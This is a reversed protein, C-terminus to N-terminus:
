AAPSGARRSPPSPRRSQGPGTGTAQFACGMSRTPLSRRPPSRQRPTPSSNPRSLAPPTKITNPTLAESFAFITSHFKIRAPEVPQFPRNKPPPTEAVASTASTLYGTRPPWRPSRAWIMFHFPAVRGTGSALLMAHLNASEQGKTQCKGRQRKKPCAGEGSLRISGRSLLLGSGGQLLGRRFCM